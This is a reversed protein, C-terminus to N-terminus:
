SDPGAPAAGGCPLTVDLRKGRPGTVTVTADGDYTWGLLNGTGWSLEIDGGTPCQDDCRQVREASLAIPAIAGLANGSLNAGGTLEVCNNATTWTAFATLDLTPNGDTTFHIDGDFEVPAPTADALIDQRLEFLGRLSFVHQPTTLTLGESGISLVLRSPPGPEVVLRVSINGDLTGVLFIGCQDFTVDLYTLSDTNIAICGLNTVRSRLDASADAIKRAVAEPPNLGFLRSDAQLPVMLRALNGGSDVASATQKTSLTDQETTDGDDAGCGIIALAIVLANWAAYPRLM